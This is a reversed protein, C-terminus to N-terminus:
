QKLLKEVMKRLEDIQQQQLNSLKSLDKIQQQQEKISEIMVPILGSYNVALIGDKNETVLEPFLKQVEQALVGTQLNNDNNQDKWYYHYGCLQIIKELSNQLPVINRKLRMDSPYNTGNVTLIGTSNTLYMRETYVNSAYYGFTIKAAPNDSYIQLQAGQVAFGDQSNPSSEFLSIKKGVVNSFALPANPSTNAIGVNATSTNMTLGWGAGAQGYFGVANDNTIGVFAQLASNDTKNLWVGATNNLDGGSRIRMRNNVDLLYGPDIMGIGTNGNRLVTMANSRTSLDNGNGIQFLRDGPAPTFEDPNDNNDNFAGISLSGNSKATTYLGM